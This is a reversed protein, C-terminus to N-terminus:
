LSFFKIKLYGILVLVISVLSYYSEQYIFFSIIYSALVTSYYIINKSGFPSLGFVGLSFSLLSILYKSFLSFGFIGLLATMLLFPFISASFSFLLTTLLKAIYIREIGIIRAIEKYEKRPFISLNFYSYIDVFVMTIIMLILISSWPLSLLNFKSAISVNYYSPISLVKGDVEVVSLNRSIFSGKAISIYQFASNPNVSIIIKRSNALIEIKIKQGQIYSVHSYISFSGNKSIEEGILNNNIYVKIISSIGQGYYNFVYGNVKVGFFSAETYGIVNFFYFSLVYLLFSSIALLFLILPVFFYLRKLEVIFIYSYRM